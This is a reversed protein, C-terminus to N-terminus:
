GNMLLQPLTIGHNVELSDLDLKVIGASSADVGLQGAAIDLFQGFLNPLGMVDEHLQDRRPAAKPQVSRNELERGL